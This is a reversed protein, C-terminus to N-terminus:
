DKVYIRKVRAAVNTLVEYPITELWRAVEEIPLEPGFIVVEEGVQINSGTIDIMTMDMCVNGIVPYLQENIWVKGVGNSLARRFGDAYGVPITAIRTPKEVEGKRGYGVTEGPVVERVQAVKTKLRGVQKIDKQKASVGYLGIGLRVYDFQYQPFREIGASNLIHQKIKRNLANEIEGAMKKFLDAQQHTFEDHEAEDSAALHSFVSGVFMYPQNEIKGVLEKLRSHNFGSRNMGTNLKLHVPFNREGQRALFQEFQMLMNFDFIVPELRYRLISDFDTAHPNMVIIPLEIGRTRLDVGEDAFAVALYAVRHYQLINAIEHSGSGYSFAKVMVIIGTQQSVLSKFYNLNDALANLNVELVTRHSKEELLKDIEEFHFARSGKLLITADSLDVDSLSAIFSRTSDYFKAPVHFLDKFNLLDTGIGIMLDPKHANVLVAVEKYLNQKVYGSQFIDSLILIKRPHQKQQGLFDLANSLSGLDSNYSDNIVTNHEKGAKQELRMPVPKIRSIASLIFDPKYGLYFLTSITHMLNEITAKDSFPIEVELLNDLYKVRMTGNHLSVQVESGTKFSWTFRKANPCKENIMESIWDGEDRFIIVESNQFLKLKEELKHTFSQFNEQHADGINTFIGITPDIVRQLRDMEGPLSIGAEFLGLQAEGNLMWVSLPVGIQSNYSGPTRSLRLEHGISQAIWEKVITKGNSGTIGIVPIEFQHRWWAAVLQLAGVVDDVLIFNAKHAQAKNPKKSVIFYKVGKKILNEIFDHGDHYQGPIAFFLVYDPLSLKRSDTLLYKVQGRCSGQCEGKTIEVIKKLEIM